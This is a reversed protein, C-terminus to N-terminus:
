LCSFAQFRRELAHEAYGNIAHKLEKRVQEPLRVKGMEQDSLLLMRRVAELSLASVPVADM